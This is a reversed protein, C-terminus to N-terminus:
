QLLKYLHRLGDWFRMFAEQHPSLKGDENLWADISTDIRKLEALNEFVKEGDLLHKDVEDFDAVMLQGWAYFQDFNENPFLTQYIPFLEFTLSIPDLVNVSQLTPVFDEIAYLAPAWTATASAQAVSDQMFVCARRSPFVICLEGITKGHTALLERSLQQIFTPM